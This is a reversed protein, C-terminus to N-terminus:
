PAGMAIDRYRNSLLVEVNGFNGAGFEELLTLLDADCLPIVLGQQAVYADNCRRLLLPFDDVGRFLMLGVKGHNVSFRGILQDLEPNAVQRSYNKCEVFVFQAPLSNAAHVRHFFGTRAANDFSIDIRKRGQFIEREVKPSVLNPYLLLELISVCLRHYRRADEGGPQIARLSACLFAAVEAGDTETIEDNDVSKSTAAAWDKFNGFVEPHTQTFQALFEKSFPAVSEQLSIKTVYPAGNARFQVLASRMTLHEHRLFDLVFQSYYKKPAYRKVFSVISKPTLLIKKSDIVLAESYASEWSRTASEWYFESAVGPTLPIDWLQCQDKTYEMLHRRIINTTMDSVKDKDVGPIFIRFDELDEVVGTNLAESELISEFLRDANEEGIARGQPKARSMGLCTENPEHLHDFLRRAQALDGSRAVEVFTQFFNRVSRSAAMSWADTRVSLFFPDIFLRTDVDTDIDVFDIEHQSVGLQFRQTIKV